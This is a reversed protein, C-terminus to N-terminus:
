RGKGIAGEMRGIAMSEVRRKFPVTIDYREELEDLKVKLFSEWIQGANAHRSQYDAEDLIIREDLGKTYLVYMDDLDGERETFSKALFIDERGMLHVTLRRMRSHTELRKKMKPHVLFKGCIRDAFIDLRYGDPHEYIIAGMIRYPRALSKPRIFGCKEIARIFSRHDASEPIVIDVDKTAQKEGRLAMAGGGIIIIDTAKAMHRDILELMTDIDQASIMRAKMDIVM